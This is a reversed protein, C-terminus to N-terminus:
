QNSEWDPCVGPNCALDGTPPVRSAVVCRHKEGERERERGERFNFLYFTLFCFLVLFWGQEVAQYEIETLRGNGRDRPGSLHGLAVVEVCTRVNLGFLAIQILNGSLGM